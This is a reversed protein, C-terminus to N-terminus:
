GGFCRRYKLKKDVKENRDYLFVDTETQMADNYLEVIEDVGALRSQLEACVRRL